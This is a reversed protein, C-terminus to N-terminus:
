IVEDIDDQHISKKPVLTFKLGFGLGTAAAAPISKKILLDHIQTNTFHPFDGGTPTKGLVHQANLHIAITINPVIGFNKCIERMAHQDIQVLKHTERGEEWRIFHQTKKAEEQRQHECFRQQKSRSCQCIGQPYIEQPYIEQPYIKLPCIEQLRRPHGQEEPYEL